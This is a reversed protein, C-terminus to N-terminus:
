RAPISAQYYLSNKVAQEDNRHASKVKKQIEEIVIGSKIAIAVSEIRIKKGKENKQEERCARQNCQQM